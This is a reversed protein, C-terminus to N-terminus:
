LVHKRQTQTQDLFLLNTEPQSVVTPSATQIGKAKSQKERPNSFLLLDALRTKSPRFLLRQAKANDHQQWWISKPLPSYAQM